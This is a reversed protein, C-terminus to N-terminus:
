AYKRELKEELEKLGTNWEAIYRKNGLEFAVAKLTMADENMKHKVTWGGGECSSGSWVTQGNPTKTSKADSCWRQFMKIGAQISEENHRM